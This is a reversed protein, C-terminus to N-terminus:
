RAIAVQVSALTAEIHLKVLQGAVLTPSNAPITAMVSGSTVAVVALFSEISVFGFFDGM